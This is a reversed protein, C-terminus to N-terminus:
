YAEVMAVLKGGEYYSVPIRFSVNCQARLQMATSVCAKFSGSITPDALAVHLDVAQSPCREIGISCRGTTAASGASGGDGPLEHAAPQSCGALYLSAMAVAVTAGQKTM